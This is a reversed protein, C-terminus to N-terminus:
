IMLGEIVKLFVETKLGDSAEVILGAADLERRLYDIANTQQVNNETSKIDLPKPLVCGIAIEFTPVELPPDGM